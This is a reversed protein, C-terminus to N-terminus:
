IGGKYGQIQADVRPCIRMFALDLVIRMSVGRVARLLIVGLVASLCGVCFALVLGMLNLIVILIIYLILSGIMVVWGILLQHLTGHVGRIIKPAIMLGNGYHVM